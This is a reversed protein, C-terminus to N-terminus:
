ESQHSVSPSVLRALNLMSAKPATRVSPTDETRDQTWDILAQYLDEPKVPKSVYGDMGVAHCRECDGKM